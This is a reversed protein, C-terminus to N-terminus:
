FVSFSSNEILKALTQLGKAHLRKNELDCELNKTPAQSQLLEMKNVEIKLGTSPLVEVTVM